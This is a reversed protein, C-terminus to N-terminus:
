VPPLGPFMGRLASLKQRAAQESGIVTRDHGIWGAEIASVIDVPSLMTTIEIAIAAIKTPDVRRAARHIEQHSLGTVLELWAVAVHQGCTSYRNLLEVWGACLLDKALKAQPDKRRPVKVFRGPAVGTLLSAAAVLAVWYTFLIDDSRQEVHM